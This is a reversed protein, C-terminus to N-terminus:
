GADVRAIEANVEAINAQINQVAAPSAMGQSALRLHEREDELRESLFERYGEIGGTSEEVTGEATDLSDFAETVLAPSAGAEILRDVRPRADLLTEYQAQQTTVEAGLDELSPTAEEGTTFIVGTVVIAAIIAGAILALQLGTLDGLRWGEREKVKAQDAM